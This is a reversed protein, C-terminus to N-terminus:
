DADYMINGNADRKFVKVVKPGQVFNLGIMPIEDKYANIGGCTSKEGDIADENYIYAMGLEPNCGVYDDDNCGLDPDILWSFYCDILDEPAKSILKYQYFTM